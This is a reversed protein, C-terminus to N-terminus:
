SALALSSSLLGADHEHFLEQGRAAREMLVRIKEPTGPIADCPECPLRKRGMGLGRNQTSLPPYRDRVTPTYFCSWCLGRSRAVPRRDCHRCLM